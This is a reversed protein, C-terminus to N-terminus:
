DIEGENTVEVKTNYINCVNGEILTEYYDFEADANIETLKESNFSIGSAKKYFEKIAEEKNEAQVSITVTGAFPMQVTYNRM